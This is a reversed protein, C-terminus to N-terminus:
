APADAAIEDILMYPVPFRDGGASEVTVCGVADANEDAVVKYLISGAQYWMGIRSKM